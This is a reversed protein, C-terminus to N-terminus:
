PRVAPQLPSYTTPDTLWRRGKASEAACTCSCKTTQKHKLQMPGHQALGKLRGRSGLHLPTSHIHPIMRSTTSDVLQLALEDGLVKVAVPWTIFCLFTTM